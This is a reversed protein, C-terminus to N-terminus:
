QSSASPHGTRTIVRTKAVHERLYIIARVSRLSFASEFDSAVDEFGGRAHFEEAPPQWRKHRMTPSTDPGPYFGAVTSDPSAESQSCAGVRRGEM